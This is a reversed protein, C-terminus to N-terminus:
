GASRPVIAAQRDRLESISDKVTSLSMEHAEFGRGIARLLTISLRGGLHERFEELGCLVLLEGDTGAQELEKSFIEFGVSELLRLIREASTGDLYGKRRSYIVDLAIGIAVAEGHPLHFGSLQEMKHAAWHGFDLPRASGSEFPDGGSVIHDLHLGACHRILRRMAEPECDRLATADAELEEFFAPARICAVKIAESFGARKARDNLTSLLQFDNLVAFPPSFTGIFNKKGFANIGNKVGVGSDCQSLTTSPVRVHLIGRHATAAALGAMDLLGGGGVAVLCSHRDLHYQDIASHLECVHSWSSKAYEGGPTLLPPRVLTLEGKWAAFYAPIDALLRPQAIALAEDLVILVRRPESGPTKGLVGSLTANAPDFLHDTFIVRHQWKVEITHEITDVLFQPSLGM